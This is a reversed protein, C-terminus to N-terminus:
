TLTATADLARRLDDLARRVAEAHGRVDRIMRAQAPALRGPAVREIYELATEAQELAACGDAVHGHAQGALRGIWGVGAEIETGKKWVWYPPPVTRAPQQRTM